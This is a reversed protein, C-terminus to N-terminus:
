NRTRVSTAADPRAKKPYPVIAGQARGDLLDLQIAQSTGRM